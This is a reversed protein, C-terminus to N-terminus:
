QICYDDTHSDNNDYTETVYAANIWQIGYEDTDYEDWSREQAGEEGEEGEPVANIKKMPLNEARVEIRYLSEEKLDEYTGLKGKEQEELMKVRLDAPLIELLGRVKDDDDMEYKGHEALFELKAEWSEISHSVGDWTAEVVKWIKAKELFLKKPTIQM